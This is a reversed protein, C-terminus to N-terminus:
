QLDTDISQALIWQLQSTPRYGTFLEGTEPNHWDRLTPEFVLEDYHNIIKPSQKSRASQKPLNFGFREFLRYPKMAAFINDLAAAYVMQPTNGGAKRNLDPETFVKAGYKVLEILDKEVNEVKRFHQARPSTYRDGKQNWKKVWETTLTKAMQANAVILHIHPNYTKTIPNFNCETARLGILKEGKGQQDKKKHYERLQRFAKHLGRFAWSLKGALVAKVTLTVFHPDEWTQIEPLYQNILEAKRISACLTCWRNKCYRGYVRGESSFLKEQCHYTNWYGQLRETAGKKEAAEILSLVVAQTVIKRKARGAWAAKNTTDTGVGFVIRGQLLADTDGIASGNQALTNFFSQTATAGKESVPPSYNKKM